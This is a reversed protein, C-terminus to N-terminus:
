TQTETLEANAGEQHHGGAVAHVGDQHPVVGVDFLHTHDTSIIPNTKPPTHPSQSIGFFFCKQGICVYTSM